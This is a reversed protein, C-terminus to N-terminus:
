NELEEYMKVTKNMEKLLPLNLKAMKEIDDGSVDKADIDTVKDIINKFDGWLTNVVALQALVATDSTPPLGLDTDGNELGKLTRDFLSATNKLEARNKEQEYNLSVLLMEKSMKQTLMRQKGALNIVTGAKRGTVKKAEKEYLRVAMNMYKLLPLNLEAVQDVPVEGGNIVRQVVVKFDSWLKEVKNLMILTKQNETPPLGLDASGNILGELSNNFLSATKKLEERNGNMNVGRAILLMEKSMKQTLMRQRGAINIIVAYEGATLEGASMISLTVMVFLIMNILREYKKM